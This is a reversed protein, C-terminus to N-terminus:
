EQLAQKQYCFCVCYVLFYCFTTFAVHWVSHFCLLLHSHRPLGELVHGSLDRQQRSITQPRGSLLSGLWQLRSPIHTQKRTNLTGPPSHLSEPCFHSPMSWPPWTVRTALHPALSRTYPIFHSLNIPGSPQAHIIKVCHFSKM